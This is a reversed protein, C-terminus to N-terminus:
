KGDWNSEKHCFIHCFGSRNQSSRRHKASNKDTHYDKDLLLSKVSAPLQIFLLEDDTGRLNAMAVKQEGKFFLLEIRNTENYFKGISDKELIANRCPAVTLPVSGRESHLQLLDAESGVKNAKKVRRQKEPISLVRPKMTLQEMFKDELSNAVEDPAPKWDLPRLQTSWIVEVDSGITQVEIQQLFPDNTIILGRRLISQDM